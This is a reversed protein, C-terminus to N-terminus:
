RFLLPLKNIKSSLHGNELGQRLTKVKVSKL